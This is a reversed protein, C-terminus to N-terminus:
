LAFHMYIEFFLNKEVTTKFAGHININFKQM